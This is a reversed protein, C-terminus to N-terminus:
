NKKTRKVYYVLENERAELEFAQGCDDGQILKIMQEQIQDKTGHLKGHRCTVKPNKECLDEFKKAFMRVDKQKQLDVLGRQEELTGFETCKKKEAAYVSLGVLSILVFVFTKM